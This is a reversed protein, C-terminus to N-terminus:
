VARRHISKNSGIEVVKQNQILETKMLVGGVERHLWVLSQQEAYNVKSM